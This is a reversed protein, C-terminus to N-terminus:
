SEKEKFALYIASIGAGIAAIIAAIKGGKGKAKKSTEGAVEIIEDTAQNTPTKNESPKVGEVVAEAAENAQEKIFGLATKFKESMNQAFEKNDNAYKKIAETLGDQLKGNEIEMIKGYQEFHKLIKAWENNESKVIIGIFPLKAIREAIQPEKLITEINTESINKLEKQIEPKLDKTEIYNLPNLMEYDNKGDGATIVLDNELIAKQVAKRTDYLKNLPTGDEMQPSYEVVPRNGGIKDRYEQRIFKINKDDTLYNEFATLIEKYAAKREDAHLMDYPFSAYIKLNGDNRLGIKWESQPKIGDSLEFDDYRVHAMLSKQGYDAASNESDHEIIQLNYKSLIEKLKNKLESTWNTSAKIDNEKGQNPINYDYPFKGSSYFAKESGSKIYEDSGNKMIVSNPFPMTIGKSKILESVTQFEGFTRGTTIRFNLDNKTEKLFKKFKSFYDNLATTKEESLNYLNSHKEPLYTGDFDSYLDVKGATFNVKSSQICNVKM